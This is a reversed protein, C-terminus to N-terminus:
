HRCTPLIEQLSEKGAGARGGLMCIAADLLVLEGTAAITPPEAAARMSVATTPIAM